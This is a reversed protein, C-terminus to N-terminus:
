GDDFMKGGFFLLEGKEAAMELGYLRVAGFQALDTQGSSGVFQDLAIGVTLLIVAEGNVGNIRIAFIVRVGGAEAQGGHVPDFAELEVTHDDGRDVVACNGQLVEEVSAAVFGAALIGFVM